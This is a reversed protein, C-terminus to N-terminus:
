ASALRAVIRIVGERSRWGHRQDLYRLPRKSAFLFLVFGCMGVYTLYDRALLLLTRLPRKTLADFFLRLGHM